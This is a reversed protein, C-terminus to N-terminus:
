CEVSDRIGVIKKGKVVFAFSRRCSQAKNPLAGTYTYIGDNGSYDEKFAAAGTEGPSAHKSSSVGFRLYMEMVGSGIGVGALTFHPLHRKSIAPPASGSYQVISYQDGESGGKETQAIFAVHTDPDIVVTGNVARHKLKDAASFATVPKSSSVTSSILDDELRSPVANTDIKSRGNSYPGMHYTSTLYLKGYAQMRLFIVIGANPDIPAAAISLFALFFVSTRFM